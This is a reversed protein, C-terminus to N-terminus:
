YRLLPSFQYVMRAEDSENSQKFEDLYKIPNTYFEKASLIRHTILDLFNDANIQEDDVFALAIDNLIKEDQPLEDAKTQNVSEKEEKSKQTEQFSEDSEQDSKFTFSQQFSEKNDQQDFYDKPQEKNITSDEEKSKQDMIESSKEQTKKNSQLRSQEEKVSLIFAGIQADVDKGAPLSKQWRKFSNKNVIWKKMKGEVDKAEFDKAKGFLKLFFGVFTNYCKFSVPNPEVKLNENLSLRGNMEKFHYKSQIM